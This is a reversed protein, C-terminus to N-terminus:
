FLFFPNNPDTMFFPLTLPAITLTDTLSCKMAPQTPTPTLHLFSSLVLFSNILLKISSILTKVFFVVSSYEIVPRVLSTYVRVLESETFGSRQLDRLVWMRTRFRKRLAEIQSSVNGQKNIIFGLAKLSDGSDIRTAHEAYIHARPEYSTANSIVIMNTKKSNVCLGQKKADNEIHKFMKETKEARENRFLVGDEELLNGKKLWLKESLANDDVFKWVSVPKNRWASVVRLKLTEPVNKVNPMLQIKQRSTRVPTINPPTLLRSTWLPTSQATRELPQTELFSLDGIQLEFNGNQDDLGDELDDTGVNFVYTGVVSGQPAGANVTRPRSYCENVRVTMRRRDLFSGPTKNNKKFSGKKYLIPPM